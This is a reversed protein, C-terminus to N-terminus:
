RYLAKIGGWDSQENAVVEVRGSVRMALSLDNVPMWSGVGDTLDRFAALGTHGITNQHWDISTQGPGSASVLVWYTVGMNLIPNINSSVTVPGFVGPYGPVQGSVHWFEITTGPIGGADSMIRIDIENDGGRISLALDISSLEYDNGVPTFAFALDLDEEYGYPSSSPDYSISSYYAPHYLNGAEFTDFITTALAPLTFLALAFGLIIKRMMIFERKFHTAFCSLFWGLVPLTLLMALPWSLLTNLQITLEVPQLSFYKNFLSLLM